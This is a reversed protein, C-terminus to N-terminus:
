KSPAVGGPSTRPPLLQHDLAALIAGPEIQAMEGQDGVLTTNPGFRFGWRAPDTPGFLGVSPVRALDAVHLFVSDVGLFLNAAQVTTFAAPLPLGAAELIRSGDSRELGQPRRPVSLVYVDPHRDLFEVLIRRFLPMPYIKHPLTENHVVLLRSHQPLSDLLAATDARTTPDVFVPEAFDDIELASDLALPVSFIRDATHNSELRAPVRFRRSFGISWRPKLRGLLEDVHENHWTNLSFFGDCPDMRRALDEADFSRGIKAHVGVEFEIVSQWPLGGHFAKYAARQTVLGLQGPFLAHMARIAPLSLIHDGFGNAIFVVPRRARVPAAAAPSQRPTASGGTM